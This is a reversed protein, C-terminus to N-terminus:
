LDNDSESEYLDVSENESDEFCYDFDEELKTQPKELNEDMTNRCMLLEVAIEQLKWEESSMHRSQLVYFLANKDNQDKEHVTSSYPAFNLIFQFDKNKAAKLLSSDKSVKIMKIDNQDIKSVMLNLIDKNIWGTNKSLCQIATDVYDEEFKNEINENNYISITLKLLIELSIVAHEQQKVYWPYSDFYELEYFLANKGNRDKECITSSYPAFKTIFEFNGEKAAKHLSTDKSANIKEIDIQDIKSVMLSTIDKNIIETNNSMFLIALDAYRQGLKEAVISVIEIYDEVVALNHLNKLDGYTVDRPYKLLRLPYALMSM